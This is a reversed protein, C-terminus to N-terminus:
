GECTQNRLHLEQTGNRRGTTSSDGIKAKLHELFQEFRDLDGAVRLLERTRGTLGSILQPVLFCHDSPKSCRENM